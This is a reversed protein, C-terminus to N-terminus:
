HNKDHYWLHYLRHPSPFSLYSRSLSMYSPIFFLLARLIPHLTLAFLSCVEEFNLFLLGVICRPKKELFLFLFARVRCVVTGCRRCEAVLDRACPSVKGKGTEVPFGNSELGESGEVDEMREQGAGRRGHSKSKLQSQSVLNLPHASVDNICRLTQQM